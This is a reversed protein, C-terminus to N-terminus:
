FNGGILDEWSIWSQDGFAAAMKGVLCQSGKKGKLFAKSSCIYMGLKCRTLMVNTRRLSTLFGLDRTRVVSIIIFDEENGQFSDVNFCKDNWYLDNEKLADELLQRQPDYPTIIRFKKDEEQFRRALHVVAEVEKHNVWSTGNHREAGEPVDVFHCALTDSTIPHKPNSNLNSDYIQESIFEGIQPPM